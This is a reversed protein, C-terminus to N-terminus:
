FNWHIKIPIVSTGKERKGVEIYDILQEVMPRTLHKTDVYEDIIQKRTRVTKMKLTTLEIERELDAVRSAYQEKERNLQEKLEMFENESLLGKVKDLYISSIGKVCEAIKKQIEASQTQLNKVKGELRDQFEVRAELEDRDLYQESLQHLEHLVAEELRDISIFSGICADKAVHRSSCQLYHKGHNKSSRMTYGCNMCRVKKAFIGIEGTIFPKARQAIMSQVQNWLDRDIIPEHTGEVIYWESKPRPKNQKSKYSVSGYKGQVMNGIYIENTLMDAVSFYKWLTATKMKPQQYRLGKLRKYETPNPIGRENLMKAIAMKGYGHAFLTFVERVVAAAEEDIILHGKKNPDKQYGYLAFAGIHIGQQRKTDFVKKINESLDELYWENILGNIQRAKKNGKNDTDANDVISVFRIGWLPFLGHLYKEVLELERTFRSQTKCLVIDFKRNEADRLLRNFEPRNRDAGTYDDDSYIDYLEWGKEMMYNLLITKQNRISESDDTIQLKNKDEESLSCYIAVKMKIEGLPIPKLCNVNEHTVCDKPFTLSNKM